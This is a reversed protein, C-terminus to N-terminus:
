PFIVFIVSNDEPIRRYLQKSVNQAHTM